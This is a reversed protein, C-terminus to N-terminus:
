KVQVTFSYDYGKYNSDLVFRYDGTAPLSGSWTTIDERGPDNLVKGGPAYIAPIPGDQVTLNVTQGQNAQFVYEHSGTGIFRDRVTASTASSAFQVEEVKQNCGSETRNKAIWGQLPDTIQFWGDRQNVVSVYTGNKLQGVVNDAGTTPSSRVNLPSEPDAVVAMSTICKIVDRQTSTQNNASSRTNQAIQKQPATTAVPASQSTNSSNTAPQTTQQPTASVVPENLESSVQSRPQVLAYSIGAVIGIAAVGVWILWSSKVSM